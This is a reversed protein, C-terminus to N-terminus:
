VSVKEALNRQQEGDPTPTPQSSYSFSFDVLEIKAAEKQKRRRQYMRAVEPDPIPYRMTEIIKGEKDRRHRVIVVQEHDRLARSAGTTRSIGSMGDNMNMGMGGASTLPTPAAAAPTPASILGGTDTAGANFRDDEDAVQLVDDDGHLTSDSLTEKQRTWIRKIDRNYMEEQKKVNYAHGGNAKREREIADQTTANPGQVAELYGGKMSTRIFSFGLGHGTPDGEGQLQVMAKGACADIFSKSTKWPALKANLSEEKKEGGGTGGAADGDEEDDDGDGGKRNMNRNIDEDNLFVLGRHMSDALCVDEPKIMARINAEDMLTEGKRLGWQKEMKDYSLFEKLKQRNQQDTSEKVHTTIEQLGVTHSPSKRMKRYAIMKMRHKSINTVKRSHPGPIEVSPFIQGVTYIHEVPRLYLQSSSKTTTRGLIFDTPRPEHKFIPARYMQNHLTPVTEGPDVTGFISFPSRDEPLLISTEGIENKDRKKTESTDEDGKKRCYNIVRNGMGFKSLIPPQQECAEFLVVTSNDNLTLDSTTKFAEQIRLSKAQKKTKKVRGQWRAPTRLMSRVKFSPRHIDEFYLKELPLRAEYYPWTLKLAPLSHEVTINGLTARVKNQHNEKLAQYAEDNSFNFRAIRDPVLRGNAMRRQKPAFKPRKSVQEADDILVYPDNMDLVVRKGNRATATEFNDFSRPTAFINLQPLGSEALKRKKAGPAEIDFIDHDWEADDSDHGSLGDDTILQPTSEPTDIVEAWDSCITDFDQLSFGGVIEDDAEHGLSFSVDDNEEEVEPLVSVQGRAELERLRDRSSLEAPGPVRFRSQQDIDLDLSLKTIKLPKPPRHPKRTNMSAPKAAFLKNWELMVGPKWGPFQDKLFDVTSEFTDPIDHDQNSPFNLKRMDEMSLEENTAADVAAAGVVATTAHIEVPGKSDIAGVQDGFPDEGRGPTPPGVDVDAEEDDGFLDGMDLDDMTTNHSTGEDAMLEPVRENLQTSEQPSSNYQQNIRPANADDNPLDDEDSLDIDEYDVAGEAKEQDGGLQGPELSLKFSSGPNSAELARAIEDEDAQEQARWDDENMANFDREM